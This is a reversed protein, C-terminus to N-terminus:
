RMAEQIESEPVGVARLAALCIAMPASEDCECAIDDMGIEHVVAEWKHQHDILSVLWKCSGDDKTQKRMHEVVEWAAAISGSYNPYRHWEVVKYDLMMGGDQKEKLWAHIDTWRSSWDDNGFASSKGGDNSVQQSVQPKVNMVREAVLRDIKSM